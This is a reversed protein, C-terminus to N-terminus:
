VERWEAVSRRPFHDRGVEIVTGNGVFDGAITEEDADAVCESIMAAVLLADQIRLGHRSRDKRQKRLSTM